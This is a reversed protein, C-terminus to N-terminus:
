LELLGEPPRATITGGEVDVAVIFEEVLPLQWERTDAKVVLMDHARLSIVEKATGLRAGREDIVALGVLDNVFYEGDELADQALTEAEIDAGRYMSVEEPTDIGQLKLGIGKAMPRVREVAFEGLAKGDRVLWIRATLQFRNPIDSYSKALIEGRVGHSRSIRGIVTREPRM